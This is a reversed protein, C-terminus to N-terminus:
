FNYAPVIEIPAPAASQLPQASRVQSQPAQLLPTATQGADAFDRLENLRLVMEQLQKQSETLAPAIQAQAAQTEHSDASYGQMAAAPVGEEAYRSFQAVYDKTAMYGDTAGARTAQALPRGSHWVSAADAANGYKAMSQGFKYNFVADQAARDKLFQEPTMSRGLAEKTWSPINKGMVQYAGYARDGKYSGSTVVPGKASYNGRSELQRMAAAHKPTVTM